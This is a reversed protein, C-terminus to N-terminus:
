IENILMGNNIDIMFFKEYTVTHYKGRKITMAENTITYGSLFLIDSNKEASDIIVNDELEWNWLLSMDKRLATITSSNEKRRFFLLIDGYHILNGLDNYNKLKKFNDGSLYETILQEPEMKSQNQILSYERSNSSFKVVPLHSELNNKERFSGHTIFEHNDTLFGRYSVGAKVPYNIRETIEGDKEFILMEFNSLGRGWLYLRNGILHINTNSYIYLKIEEKWLLETDYSYASILSGSNLAEVTYLFDESYKVSLLFRDKSGSNYITKETANKHNQILIENQSKGFFSDRINVATIKKNKDELYSVGFYQYRNICSSFILSLTIILGTLVINNKM